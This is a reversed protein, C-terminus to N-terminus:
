PNYFEDNLLMLIFWEVRSKNLMMAPLQCTGQLIDFHPFHGTTESGKCILFLLFLPVLCAPLFPAFRRGFRGQTTCFGSCLINNCQGDFNNEGIGNDPQVRINIVLRKIIESRTAVIEHLDDFLRAFAIAM